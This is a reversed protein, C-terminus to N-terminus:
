FLTKRYPKIEIAINLFYAYPDHEIKRFNLVIIEVIKNNM